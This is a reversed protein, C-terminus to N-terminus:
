LCRTVGCVYPRIVAEAQRFVVSHGADNLHIGDGSSYQPLLGLSSSALASFLDVFCPSHVGDDGPVWCSQFNGQMVSAWDALSVRESQSIDKPATSMFFTPIGAARATDRLTTLRELFTASSTGAALDNSGALAVLILDPQDLIAEEINGSKRSAPLLEVSTYGGVAFNSVSFASVGRLSGALLEVWAYSASSAGEGAATSSGIIALHFSPKLPPPGEEEESGDDDEAGDDEGDDDEGDDDEGDDDEGDDDEGDDDEGDEDEGDDDEGDEDGPDDASTGAAGSSGPVEGDQEADAGGAGGGPQPASEPGGSGGDGSAGGVGDAGAAGSGADVPQPADPAGDSPTGDDLPPQEAAAEPPSGNTDGAGDAEATGEAAYRDLEIHADDLAAEDRQAEAAEPEAPPVDEAQANGPAPASQSLAPEAEAAQAPPPALAASTPATGATLSADNGTCALLSLM